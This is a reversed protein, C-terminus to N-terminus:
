VESQNFLAHTLLHRWFRLILCSTAMHLELAILLWLFCVLLLVLVLNESRHLDVYELLLKQPIWLPSPSLHSLHRCPQTSDGHCLNILPVPVAMLANVM